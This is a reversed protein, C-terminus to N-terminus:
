YRWRETEKLTAVPYFEVAGLDVLMNTVPVGGFHRAFTLATSNQPVVKYKDYLTLYQDAPPLKVYVTSPTKANIDAGHEILFTIMHTKGYQAAIMLPTQGYHDIENIDVLIKKLLYEAMYSNGDFVLLGLATFSAYNNIDAGHELLIEFIAKNNVRLASVLSTMGNKALYNIDAGNNILFLVLDTSRTYGSADILPTTGESGLENINAGYKLLVKVGELIKEASTLTRYSRILETLPTKKEHSIGDPSAGNELFYQILSIKGNEAAEILPSDKNYKSPSEIDIKNQQIFDRIKKLDGDRILSSLKERPTIELSYLPYFFTTFIFFCSM